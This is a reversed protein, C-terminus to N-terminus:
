RPNRAVVGGLVQFSAWTWHQEYPHNALEELQAMRLASAADAGQRLEQHFRVFLRATSQDDVQWLSGVAAPAGAALFSYALNLSGESTSVRGVQTECASLVVLRTRVLHLGLIDPTTLAGSCCNGDPSLSLFARDPDDRDGLAHVALHAVDSEGLLSLVRSPTAEAQTLLTVNVGSYVAKLAHVEKKAGPLPPLQLEDVVPDGVLLVQTLPPVALRRDHEVAHLFESASPAFGLVHDQILFRDTESDLLASFPVNYLSRAPVFIIREQGALSHKWPAVLHQYLHALVMRKAPGGRLNRLDEILPFVKAWQPQRRVVEIGSPRVVWTVLREEVVGYVVIVTDTPMRRCIERWTLPAALLEATENQRGSPASIEQLRDLLSRARFRELTELAQEPKALHLQLAVMRDYLPRAQDLFSVQFTGPTVKARKRDLENLARRLYGEAAATDGRRFYFDAHASLQDQTGLQRALEAFRNETEDIEMRTVDIQAALRERESPPVRQLEEIARHFDRKAEERWVLGAEIRAQGLLALVVEESDELVQTITVLRHQLRLAVKPRQQSLSAAVASELLDVAVLLDSRASVNKSWALAQYRHGWAATHQGLSDLCNAILIQTSATHPQEGVQRFLHIAREYYAVADALAEQSQAISGLLRQSRAELSPYDALRQDQGLRKLETSAKSYNGQWYLDAAHRYLVLPGVASPSSQLQRGAEALATMESETSSEDLAERLNRRRSLYRLLPATQPSSRPEATIVEMEAVIQLFIRDGRRGISFLEALDRAGLLLLDARERDGRVIADAWLPLLDDEFVERAEPGMGLKVIAAQDGYSLAQNLLKRRDVPRRRVNNQLKYIRQRAEGAWSSTGDLQLYRRWAEVAEQDLFLRELAVARNFAADAFGPDISVADEALELAAVCDDPRSVDRPRRPDPAGVGPRTTPTGTSRRFNRARQTRAREGYLASLDSLLAPEGPSLQLSAELDRIAEDLRSEALLLTARDRPAQSGRDRQRMGEFRERKVHDLGVPTPYPAYAIQGGLRGETLRMPGLAAAISSSSDESPSSQARNCQTPLALVSGIIIGVTVYAARHAVTSRTM